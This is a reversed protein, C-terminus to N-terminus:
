GARIHQQYHIAQQIRAQKNDEISSQECWASISEIEARVDVPLGSEPPKIPAKVYDIDGPL